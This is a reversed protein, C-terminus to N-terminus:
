ATKDNLGRDRDAYVYLAIGVAVLLVVLGVFELVMGGKRIPGAIVVGRGLDILSGGSEKVGRQLAKASRKAWPLAGGTARFGWLGAAIAVAFLAALSGYQKWRQM